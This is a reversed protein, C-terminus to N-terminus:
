QAPAAPPGGPIAPVSRWGSACTPVYPYYGKSAECYYWNQPTPPPPAVGASPTVVVSPPPEYPNPYPYVPSPYFYWVGGVVWWWGWRGGHRDHIWRGGRWLDWDHERFHGIDGGWYPRPQAQTAPTSLAAALLAGASCVAPLLVRRILAALGGTRTSGSMFLAERDEGTKM